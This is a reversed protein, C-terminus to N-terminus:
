YVVGLHREACGQCIRASHMHGVNNLEGCRSCRRFFRRDQLVTQHIHDDGAGPAFETDYETWRLIPTGPGDWHVTAVSVVVRGDRSRDIEVFQALESLIEEDLKV